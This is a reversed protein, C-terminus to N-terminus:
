WSVENIERKTRHEKRERNEEGLRTDFQKDYGEVEVEYLGM